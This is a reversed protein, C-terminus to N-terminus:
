TLNKHMSIIIPVYKFSNPVFRTVLREQLIGRLSKQFAAYMHIRKFRQSRHLLARIRNSKISNKRTM